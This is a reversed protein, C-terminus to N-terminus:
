TNVENLASINHVRVTRSFGKPQVDGVVEAVAIDEIAALVHLLDFGSSALWRRTAAPDEALRKVGVGLRAARALLTSGDPSDPCALVLAFSVRLEAALALMHEGVGSPERSDTALCLRLTGPRTM